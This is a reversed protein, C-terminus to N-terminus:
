ITHRLYVLCPSGIAASDDEVWHIENKEVRKFLATRHTERFGIKRYFKLASNDSRVRVFIDKLELQNRGWEFLTKLATGMAGKPAYRGRVIADAEGSHTEWDIFDLGLIKCFAM